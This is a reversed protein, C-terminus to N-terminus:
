NIEANYTVKVYRIKIGQPYTDNGGVTRGIYMMFVDGSSPSISWSPGFAHHGEENPVTVIQSHSNKTTDDPDDPQLGGYSFVHPVMFIEIDGSQSNSNDRIVVEITIDTGPLIDQPYPCFLQHTMGPNIEETGYQNVVHFNKTIYHRHNSEAFDTSDLGDLTDADTNIANNDEACVWASGNWKLVQDSSCTEIKEMYEEHTHNSLAYDPHDHAPILSIDLVGSTIDSADHEHDVLAFDSAPHGQLTDADGDASASSGGGCNYTMTFGAIFAFLM